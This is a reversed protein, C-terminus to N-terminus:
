QQLVSPVIYDKVYQPPRTSNDTYWSTFVAILNLDPVVFIYQERAGWAFYTKHGHYSNIWWQYGYNGGVGNDEKSGESQYETSEEIWKSSILQKGAWKGKNLYLYAFRAADEATMELWAGGNNVGQPDTPWEVSKMGIKGFLNEKAFDFTSEGTSEQVIYSLLHSAGSNYNFVDGPKEAMQRGVIFRIWNESNIMPAFFHNWETSEPWDIGSTMNLLHRVSMAQKLKDEDAKKFETIYKAVKDDVSNIYGKDIAIGVIASTISKTCSYWNFATKKSCGPKYYELVKYGNRVILLSNIQGEKKVKALMNNIISTDFGQKQLTSSEWKRTPFSAQRYKTGNDVAPSFGSSVLFISTCIFACLVKTYKM